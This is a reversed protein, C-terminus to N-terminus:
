GRKKSFLKNETGNKLREINEKHKCVILLALLLSVIFHVIDLSHRAIMFAITICPYIVAAIVSGLSVYKTMIMIVLAAVLVILGARWDFMMVAGLSTAVGKGGKFGFFIPYDHGLIVFLGAIYKISGLLYKSEFASFASNDKVVVDILVGIGVAVIGKLIDIVLTMLVAKKGYVRLMNTAGANNSGYKRVDDGYLTKSITVAGSISGILYSVLATLAAIIYLM